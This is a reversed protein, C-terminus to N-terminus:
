ENLQRQNTWDSIERFSTLKPSDNKSRNFTNLFETESDRHNEELAISWLKNKIMEENHEM